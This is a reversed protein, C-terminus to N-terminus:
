EQFTGDMWLMLRKGLEQKVEDGDHFKARDKGLSAELDKMLMPAHKFGVTQTAIWKIQFAHSNKWGLRPYWSPKRWVKHPAETLQAYGQFGGSRKVHFILVVQGQYYYAKELEKEFAKRTVWSNENQAICVADELYDPITMIFFSFPGKLKLSELLTERQRIQTQRMTEPSASRRRIRGPGRPAIIKSRAIGVQSSATNAHILQLDRNKDGDSTISPDLLRLPLSEVQQSQNLDNLKEKLNQIKEKELTLQTTYYEIQRACHNHNAEAELKAEILGARRAAIEDRPKQVQHKEPQRGRRTPKKQSDRASSSQILQVRDPHVAEPKVRLAVTLSTESALPAVADTTIYDQAHESHRDSM